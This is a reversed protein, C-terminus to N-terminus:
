HLTKKSEHVPVTKTETVKDALMKILEQLIQPAQDLDVPDFELSGPDYSQLDFYDGSSLLVKCCCGNDCIFMEEITWDPPIDGAQEAQGVIFGALVAWQKKNM